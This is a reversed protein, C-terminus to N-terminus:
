TAQLEWWLQYAEQLLAFTERIDRKDPCAITMTEIRSTFRRLHGAIEDVVVNYVDQQTLRGVGVGSGVPPFVISRVQHREASQLTSTIAREVHDIRTAGGLDDFVVAHFVMIIGRDMLDGSTTAVSTGLTLPAQAMIEREIGAGGRLRVLGAAGAVMMGRRNAPCVISEAETCFVDGSLVQVTTRGFRISAQHDSNTAVTFSPVFTGAIARTAALRCSGYSLLNVMPM